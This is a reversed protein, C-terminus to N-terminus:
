PSSFLLQITEYTSCHLWRSVILAVNRFQQSVSRGHDNLGVKWLNFMMLFFHSLILVLSQRFILDFFSDDRELFKMMIKLLAVIYPMSFKKVMRNKINCNQCFDLLFPLIACWFLWLTGFLWCTRLKSFCSVHRLRMRRQCTGQVGINKIQKWGM